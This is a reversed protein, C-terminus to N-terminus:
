NSFLFQSAQLETASLIGSYSILESVRGNWFEASLAQTAGVRGSSLVTNWTRATGTIAGGNFAGRAQTGNYDSYVFFPQTTNSWVNAVTHDITSYGVTGHLQASKGIMSGQGGSYTGYGYMYKYGDTTSNVTGVGFMTRSTAGAPM